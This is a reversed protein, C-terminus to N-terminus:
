RRRRGASPEGIGPVPPLFEYVADTVLSLSELSPAEARTVVDFEYVHVRSPGIAKIGVPLVLGQTVGGIQFVEQVQRLVQDVLIDDRLGKAECCVIMEERASGRDEIALFLADIESRGGLKVATQLHDLQVIGRQSVLAFHTELVRLRVAVQILWSEDSRGLRRSALPLSVSEIRFHPAGPTPEPLLNPFPETQGEALRIFEFCEGEGTRQRATYGRELITRPWNGNASRRNRVYDKFFNAPNRDSMPTDPNAASYERIAYGVQELTVVAASLTGTNQDWRAHFIREIIAPKRSRAV